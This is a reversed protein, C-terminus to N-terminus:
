FKKIAKLIIKQAEEKTEPRENRFLVQLHLRLEKKVRERLEKSVNEASAKSVLKAYEEESLIIM